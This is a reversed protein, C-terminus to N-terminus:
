IYHRRVNINFNSVDVCVVPANYFLTSGTAYSGNTLLSVLVPNDPFLVGTVPTNLIVVSAESPEAVRPLLDTSQAAEDPLLRVSFGVESSDENALLPVTLTSTNQDPDFRITGNVPVYHEDPRASNGVTTYSISITLSPDGGRLLTLMACKRDVEFNSVPEQM